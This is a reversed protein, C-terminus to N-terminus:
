PIQFFISSVFLSFNIIGSGSLSFNYFSSSVKMAFFLDELTWHYGNLKKPKLDHISFIFNM